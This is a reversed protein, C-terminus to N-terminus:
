YAWAMETRLGEDFNNFVQRNVHIYFLGNRRVERDSTVAGLATYFRRGKLSGLTPLQCKMALELVGSLM